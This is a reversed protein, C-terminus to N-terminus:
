QSPCEYGGPNRELYRQHYDEAEWWQGAPLVETVVRNKWWQESVERTVEKAEREQEEGHFFVASRYQTGMDNGQRNSQRPDHMRYFFELIQRYSLKSADYELRIAEAHGTRGSCVARYSPNSADGGTYGVRADLLGSSPPFHHRYMHEPGWFCGCALTAISAGPNQPTNGSSTSTGAGGEPSFRATGTTFSRFIRTLMTASLGSSTLYIALLAFTLAILQHLQHRLTPSDASSMVRLLVCNLDEVNDFLGGEGFLGWNEIRFSHLIKDRHELAARMLPGNRASPVDVENANEFEGPTHPINISILIDTKQAELRILNLLVVTFDPGPKDASTTANHAHNQSAILSYAPIQPGLSPIDDRSIDYIKTEESGASDENGGKPEAQGYGASIVDQYHYKIAEEDTECPHDPPEARELIDFIISTLGAKSLYVEQNDPVQRLNSVDLYDTPLEATIAGGYIEKKEHM